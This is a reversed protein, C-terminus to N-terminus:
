RKITRSQANLWPKAPGKGRAERCTERAMTFCTNATEMDGTRQYFRGHHRWRDAEALLATALREFYSKEKMPKMQIAEM